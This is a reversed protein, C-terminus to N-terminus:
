APATVNHWHGNKTDTKSSATLLWNYGDHRHGHSLTILASRFWDGGESTEPRNSCVPTTVEVDHTHDLLRYAFVYSVVGMIALIVSGILTFGLIRGLM